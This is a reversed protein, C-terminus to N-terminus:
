FLTQKKLAESYTPAYSLVLVEHPYLGKSNPSIKKIREEVPIVDETILHSRVSLNDEVSSKLDKKKQRPKKKFFDFFGM